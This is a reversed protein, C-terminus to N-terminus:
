LKWGRLTRLAAELAERQGPHAVRRLLHEYTDIALELMEPDHEESAVSTANDAMAARALDDEPFRTTVQRWRGVRRRPNSESLAWLHWAGRNAPDAAIAQSALEGVAEPGRGQLWYANALVVLAHANAPQLAVVREFLPAIINPDDRFPEAAAVIEDPLADAVLAELRHHVSVINPHPGEDAVIRSLETTLDRPPPPAM